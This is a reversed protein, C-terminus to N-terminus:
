RAAAPAYSAEKDEDTEVGECGGAPEVNSLCQVFAWLASIQEPALAGAYSPMRDPYGDAVVVSPDLIATRFYLPGRRGNESGTSGAAWGNLPPDVTTSAVRDSNDTDGAKHCVSCNYQYFEGEGYDALSRGRPHNRAPTGLVRFSVFREGSVDYLAGWWAAGVDFARYPDTTTMGDTIQADLANVWVYKRGRSVLGAYQRRYDAVPGPLRNSLGALSREVAEVAPESLDRGSTPRPADSDWGNVYATLLARSPPVIVYRGPVSQAPPPGGGCGVLAITLVSLVYRARVM